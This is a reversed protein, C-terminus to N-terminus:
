PTSVPERSKKKRPPREMAGIDMLISTAEREYWEYDIDDPLKEPLEMLPKAGDSRPVKNGTPAYVIEGGIDSAYYWRISKGLYEVMGNSWVKAAGGKVTRVVVFKSVDSCSRITDVIPIDNTLFAEVAEVCITSTPNKFLREALNKTSAWPNAYAGKNKTKNDEKIAIYNNVDRSYLARYTTGETEFGTDLEWRKVIAELRGQEDRRCRIVVGDTNASVVHIGNLELREILMLLLLQGTVTVQILLDPSYLISYKSGLKGFSGNVVIKLSDAVVKQGAKKAAIRREVISRYVELFARGLHRPALGLNLIIYPYYSTVDKDVIIYEADSKQAVKQETSHLGGIGMQYVTGNIDLKLDKMSAPNGVGGSEDVVFDANRVVDLAWNLLQSKFQIFDPVQYRYKTGIAIVPKNPRPGLRSLEAGIVAEAIQADSKSRVDVRYQDSLSYRLSIHENLCERLALTNTLDGNLCYWRVIARQEETLVTDPHFPLDQMKKVHLRGAYTKLSARLPTVEIVDIHDVVLPTVHLAKLVRWAAMDSQIILNAAGKLKELSVGAVAMSCMPLDFHLSNFGVITFSSLLWRLMACDLEPGGEWSEVYTVKGTRRNMFGVLFYNVFCEIDVILEDRRQAAEILEERSMVPLDFRLAEELGPLYDPKLWVPDPPLKKEKVAKVRKLRPTDQWFLGIADSRM